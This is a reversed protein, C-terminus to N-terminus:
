GASKHLRPHQTKSISVDIGGKKSIESSGSSTLNCIIRKDPLSDIKCLSGGGYGSDIESSHLLKRSV